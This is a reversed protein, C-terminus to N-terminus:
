EYKIRRDNSDASKSAFTWTKTLIFNLGMGIGVVIIQSFLKNLNFMNVLIFLCLTNLGLIIINVLLFKLYILYSSEKVQFVWNKNWIYSNIMGLMYSIINAIIYNMNFLYVLIGYSGITIATNLIGILSFKLLEKM